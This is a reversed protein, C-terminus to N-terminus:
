EMIDTSSRAKLAQNGKAQRAHRFPNFGCLRVEEKYNQSSQKV